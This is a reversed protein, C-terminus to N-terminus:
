VNRTAQVAKIGDSQCKELLVRGSKWSFFASTHADDNKWEGCRAVALMILLSEALLLREIRESMYLGSSDHRLCHGIAIGRRFEEVYTWGIQM